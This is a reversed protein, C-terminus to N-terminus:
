TTGFGASRVQMRGMNRCVETGGDIVSRAWDRCQDQVVIFDVDSPDDIGRTV